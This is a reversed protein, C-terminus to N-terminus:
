LSRLPLRGHGSGHGLPYARPTAIPPDEIFDGACDSRWTRSSSQEPAYWLIDSCGDGDFDAVHPSTDGIFNRTWVLDAGDEFYSIQAADPRYVVVDDIDDDTFRGALPKGQGWEIVDVQGPRYCDAMLRWRLASGNMPNYWILEDNADSDFNGVIRNYYTDLVLGCAEPYITDYDVEDDISHVLYSESEGPGWWYVQLSSTSEFRGVAGLYFGDHTPLNDLATTSLQEAGTFRSTVDHPLKPRQWWITTTGNGLLEDVIWPVAANELSLPAAIITEGPGGVNLHIQETVAGPGYMYVDPSTNGDLNLLLPRWYQAGVTECGNLWCETTPVHALAEGPASTRRWITREATIPDHWILRDEAVREARPLGYLYEVAVQDLVSPHAPQPDTGACDPYGMVSDPDADTVGRWDDDGGSISLSCVGPAQPYRQHEHWLGLFHGLEHTLIRDAKEPDDFTTARLWLARNGEGVNPFSALANYCLLTQPTCPTVHRVRFDIDPREDDCDSPELDVEIFNIDAAAEWKGSAARLGARALDLLEPEDLWSEDFCYSMMLKQAPHLLMDVAFGSDCAVSSRFGGARDNDGVANRHAQEVLAFDSVFIDGEIVWGGDASAVHEDLYQDFSPGVHDGVEDDGGTEASCGAVDDDPQPPPDTQCGSPLWASFVLIRALFPKCAKRTTATHGHM